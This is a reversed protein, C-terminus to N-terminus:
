VTIKIATEYNKSIAEWDVVNWFNEIYEGRENQYNLYSAHEWVVLGPIPTGQIDATDMLPYDQNARLTSALM